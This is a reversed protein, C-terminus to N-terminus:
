KRAEMMKDAIKYACIAVSEHQYDGLNRYGASAMGVLEAMMAHAAFYDRLDMGSTAYRNGTTDSIDSPFAKM